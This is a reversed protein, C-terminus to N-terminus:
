VCSVIHANTFCSDRQRVQCGYLRHYGIYWGEITCANLNGGLDVVQYFRDQLPNKDIPLKGDTLVPDWSNLEFAIPDCGYENRCQFRITKTKKNYEVTIGSWGLNAWPSISADYDKVEDAWLCKNPGQTPDWMM